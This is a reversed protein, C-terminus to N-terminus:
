YSLTFELADASKKIALRAKATEIMMHTYYIQINASSLTVHSLDGELLAKSDETFILNKGAFTIKLRAATYSVELLGGYIMSSLAIIVLNLIVKSIYSNVSIQDDDNWSLKCKTNELFENILPKVDNLHVETDNITGYAQRFFKLRLVAENASSKIIQLAKEKIVPNDEEFFEISNNIAGVPGALDHFMRASMLELLKIQSIM